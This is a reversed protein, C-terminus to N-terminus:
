RSKQWHLETTKYENATHIWMFNFLQQKTLIYIDDAMLNVDILDRCISKSLNGPGTAFWVNDNPYSLVNNIAYELARKIYKNKPTVAIFNNGISGFLEQYVILEKKLELVYDLSSTCADDADAYVGGENYLLALRFIDSKMAPSPAKIFAILASKSFESLYVLAQKESFCTYKWSENCQKWTSMIAKVDNPPESDWFQFIQKPIKAVGTNIAKNIKNIRGNKRLKILLQIYVLANDQEVSLIKILTNLQMRSVDSRPYLAIVNIKFEELFHAFIDRDWYARKKEDVQNKLEVIKLIDQEALAFQDIMMYAYARHNLFGINGSDIDIADSLYMVSKKFDYKNFYALGIHFSKNAKDHPSKVDVKDFLKIAQNNKGLNFEIIAYLLSVNNNDNFVRKSYDILEDLTTKLGRKICNKMYRVIFDPDGKYCEFHEEFNMILESFNGSSMLIKNKLLFNEYDEPQIQIRKELWKEASQYDDKFCYYHVLSSCSHANEKFIKLEMAVTDSLAEVENQVLQLLLKSGIYPRQYSKWHSSLISISDSKRGSKEYIRSLLLVSDLFNPYDDILNLLKQESAEVDGRLFQIEALFKHVWVWEVKKNLLEFLFSELIELSNEALMIKSYMLCSKEHLANKTFIENIYELSYIFNQFKFHTDALFYLLEMNNKTPILKEELFNIASTYGESNLIEAADAIYKRALSNTKLAEIEATTEKKDIQDVVSDLLDIKDLDVLVNILEIIKPKQDFFKQVYERTKLEAQNLNKTQLYCKILHVIVVNSKNVIDQKLLLIEIAENERGDNFLLSAYLNTIWPNKKFKQLGKSLCDEASEYDGLEIYVKALEEVLWALNGNEIKLKTLYIILDVYRKSDKYNKIDLEVSQRNLSTM